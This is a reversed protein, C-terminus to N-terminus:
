PFYAVLQACWVMYGGNVLKCLDRWEWQGSKGGWKCFGWSMREAFTERWKGGWVNSSCIFIIANDRLPVAPEQSCIGWSATGPLCRLCLLHFKFKCFICWHGAWQLGISLVEQYFNSLNNISVCINAHFCPTCQSFTGHRSRKTCQKLLPELFLLNSAFSVELFLLTGQQLAASGRQALRSNLM